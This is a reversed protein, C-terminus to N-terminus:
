PQKARVEALAAEYEELAEANRATMKRGRAGIWAGFWVTVERAVIAAGLAPTTLGIDRVLDGIAWSTMPAGVLGDTFAFGIIAAAWVLVAIPFGGLVYAWWGARGVILVVIVLGIFFAATAAIFGWSLLYPILGDSLFTSPPYEPALRLAIVGAYLAAFVVTTLLAIATGAGRNGRLEPPMPTQMYLAAMPHDADIRIEGDRVPPAETRPAAAVVPSEDAPAPGASPLEDAESIVPREIHPQTDLGINSSQAPTEEVAEPVIVATQQEVGSADTRVSEGAVNQAQSEGEEDGGKAREVAALVDTRSPETEEVPSGAAQTERDESM